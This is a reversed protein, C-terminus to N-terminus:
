VIPVTMFSNVWIEKPCAGKLIVSCSFGDVREHRLNRDVDCVDDCDVDDCAFCSLDIVIKLGFNGFFEDVVVASDFVVAVFTRIYLFDRDFLLISKTM